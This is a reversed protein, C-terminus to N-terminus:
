HTGAFMRKMETVTSVAALDSHRRPVDRPAPRDTRQGDGGLPLQERTRPEYRKLLLSDVFLISM